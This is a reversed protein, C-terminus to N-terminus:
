GREKVYLTYFDIGVIGHPKSFGVTECVRGDVVIKEYGKIFDLADIKMKLRCFNEHLDPRINALDLDRDNAIERGDM